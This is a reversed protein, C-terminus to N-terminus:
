RVGQFARGRAHALEPWRAALDEGQRVTLVRWGAASLRREAAGVRPDTPHARTAWSPAELLVAVGIGSTPLAAALLRTDAEDLLGTVAVVLGGGDHRLRGAGVTLTATPETDVVALTSLLAADAAGVVTSTPGAPSAAVDVGSAGLLRVAYGRQILWTGISAAASV